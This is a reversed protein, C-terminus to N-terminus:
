FFTSVWKCNMSIVLELMAVYYKDLRTKHELLEYLHEYIGYNRTYLVCGYILRM